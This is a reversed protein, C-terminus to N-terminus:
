SALVLDISQNPKFGLVETWFCHLNHLHTIDYCELEHRAGTANLTDLAYRIDKFSNRFM